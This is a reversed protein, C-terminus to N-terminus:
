CGVLRAIPRAGLEVAGDGGAFDTLGHVAYDLESDQVSVRSNAGGLDREKHRFAVHANVKLM